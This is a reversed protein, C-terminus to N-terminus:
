IDASCSVVTVGPADKRTTQDALTASNTQSAISWELSIRLGVLNCRALPPVSRRAMGNRAETQDAFPVLKLITYLLFDPRQVTPKLGFGTSM